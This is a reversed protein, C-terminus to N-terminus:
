PEKAQLRKKRWTLKWTLQSNDVAIKPDRSPCLKKTKFGLFWIKFNFTLDKSFNFFLFNNLELKRIISIIRCFRNNRHHNRRRTWNRKRSRNRCARKNRPKM